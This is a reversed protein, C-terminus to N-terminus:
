FCGKRKREMRYSNRIRKGQPLLTLIVETSPTGPYGTVVEAGSEIVGEAIAENGTLLKKL